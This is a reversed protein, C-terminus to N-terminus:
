VEYLYIPQKGPAEDKAIPTWGDIKFAYVIIKAGQKLERKFKEKLKPYIRPMLFIYVVDANGLNENWFNRYKVKVDLKGDNRAFRLLRTKLLFIRLQSQLYQFLSIEFGVANADEKAFACIVKADGCGLDYVKEGKKIQALKLIRKIDSSRAPVWPAASIAGFAMTLVIALFIFDIIVSITEGIM